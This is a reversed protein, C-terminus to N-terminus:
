KIDPPVSGCDTFALTTDVRFNSSPTHREAHFMDFAYEKGPTIGFTAASADLNLTQTVQSHSGGALVIGGAVRDDQWYRAPVL